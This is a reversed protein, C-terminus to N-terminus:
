IASAPDDRSNMGCPAPRTVRSSGRRCWKLDAPHPGIGNGLGGAILTLRTARDRKRTWPAAGRAHPNLCVSEGLHLDM